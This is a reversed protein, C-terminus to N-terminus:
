VKIGFNLSFHKPTYHIQSSSKAYFDEDPQTFSFVVVTKESNEAEKISRLIDEFENNTVLATVLYDCIRIDNEMYHKQYVTIKKVTDLHIVVEVPTVIDQAAHIIISKSKSFNNSFVISHRINQATAKVHIEHTESQQGSM